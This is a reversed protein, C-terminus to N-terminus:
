LMIMEGILLQHLATTEELPDSTETQLFAVMETIFEVGPDIFTEDETKIHMDM